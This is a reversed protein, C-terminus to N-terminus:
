SKDEVFHTILIVVLGIYLPYALWLCKAQLIVLEKTLGWIASWQGTVFSIAFWLVISVLVAVNLVLKTKKKM